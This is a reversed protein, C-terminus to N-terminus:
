GGECLCEARQNAAKQWRKVGSESVLEVGETALVETFRQDSSTQVRCRATESVGTSCLAV